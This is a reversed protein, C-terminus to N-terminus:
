DRTGHAHGRRDRLRAALVAVDDEAQHAAPRALVTDLVEEVGSANGFAVRTLRDLSQDIDEGRREVLGDTFLMLTQRPGAPVDGTRLRGTRHRAAPRGARVAPLHGAGDIVAPPLHGAGAMTVQGRDPDIQAILCTAPRRDPERSAMDDLQRPVRHPPLDSSAIYRLSARYATMDVAAELGHGM